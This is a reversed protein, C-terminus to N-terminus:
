NVAKSNQKLFSLIDELVGDKFIVHKDKDLLYLCPIARLDYLSKNMISQDENYTDIWKEPYKAKRWVTLDKDPYLSLVVLQRSQLGSAIEPSNEMMEKVRKCEDCDPNNFYILLYEAKIDALTGTHGEKTVYSFNNAVSGVLNTTILKRQFIFREKDITSINESKLICDVVTLYYFENRIPSDARYLFKELVEDVTHKVISTDAALLKDMFLGIANKSNQASYRDLLNIFSLVQQQLLEPHNILKKDNFDYDSWFVETENMNRKDGGHNCSTMSFILLVLVARSIEKLLSTKYSVRQM